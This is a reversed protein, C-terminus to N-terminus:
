RRIILTSAQRIENNRGDWAQTYIGPAHVDSALTTVTQGLM